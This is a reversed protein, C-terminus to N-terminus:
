APVGQGPAVPLSPDHRGKSPWFLGYKRGGVRLWAIQLALLCLPRQGSAPCHCLDYEAGKRGLLDLVRSSLAKIGERIRRRRPTPSPM